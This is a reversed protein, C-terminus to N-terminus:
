CLVQEDRDAFTVHCSTCYVSSQNTQYEIAEDTDELTLQKYSSEFKLQDNTLISVAESSFLSLKKVGKLKDM